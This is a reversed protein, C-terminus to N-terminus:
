GRHWDQADEHQKGQQEHASSLVIEPTTLWKKESNTLVKSLCWDAEWAEWGEGDDDENIHNDELRWARQWLRKNTGPPDYQLHLHRARGLWFWVDSFRGLYFQGGHLVMYLPGVEIGNGGHKTTGSLDIEVFEPIIM